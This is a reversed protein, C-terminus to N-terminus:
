DDRYSLIGTRISRIYGANMMVPFRLLHAHQLSLPENGYHSPSRKKVHILAPVYEGRSRGRPYCHYFIACRLIPLELWQSLTM